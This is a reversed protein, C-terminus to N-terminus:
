YNTAFGGRKRPLRRPAKRKAKRKLPTPTDDPDDDDPSSSPPRDASPLDEDSAIGAAQNDRRALLKSWNVM